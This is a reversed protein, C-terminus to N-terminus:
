EGFSWYNLADGPNLARTNLFTGVIDQTVHRPELYEVILEALARKDTKAVQAYAEKFKIEDIM